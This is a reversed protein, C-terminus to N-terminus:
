FAEPPTGYTLTLYNTKAENYTEVSANNEITAYTFVNTATIKMFLWTEDSAQKGLYTNGSDELVEVLYFHKVASESTTDAGTVVVATKGAVEEFKRHERDNIDQPLSM